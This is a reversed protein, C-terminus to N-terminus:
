FCTWCIRSKILSKGVFCFLDFITMSLNRPGPFSLFGYFILLCDYIEISSNYFFCTKPWLKAPSLGIKILIQMTFARGSVWSKAFDPTM